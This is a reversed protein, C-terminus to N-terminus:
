TKLGSCVSIADNIIWNMLRLNLYFVMLFRLNLIPFFSHYFCWSNHILRQWLFIRYNILTNEAINTAGPICITWNNIYRTMYQRISYMIFSFLFSFQINSKNLLQSFLQIFFMQFTFIAGLVSLNLSELTQLHPSNMM